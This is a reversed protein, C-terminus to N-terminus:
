MWRMATVEVIPGPTFTSGALTSVAQALGLSADTRLFPRKGRKSRRGLPRAPANFAGPSEAM